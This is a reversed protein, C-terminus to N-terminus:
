LGKLAPATIDIELLGYPDSLLFAMESLEKLLYAQLLSFTPKSDM